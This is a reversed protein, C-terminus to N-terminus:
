GYCKYMLVNSQMLPKERAPLLTKDFCWIGKKEKKFLSPLRLTVKLAIVQFREFSIDFFKYLIRTLSLVRPYLGLKSNSWINKLMHVKYHTLKFHIHARFISRGVLFSSIPCITSVYQFIIWVPLWKHIASCKKM